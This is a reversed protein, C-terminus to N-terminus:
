NIFAEIVKSFKYPNDLFPFHSKGIEVISSEKIRKNMMKAVKFKVVKDKKSHIILVAAKIKKYNLAKTNKIVNSMVIKLEEKASAYDKSVIKHKLFHNLCLKLRTKVSRLDFGPTSVLVAKYSKEELMKLIVRGGFSHGILIPNDIGKVNIFEEILKSYDNLDRINEIKSKGFGPLDLFYLNVNELYNQIFLFSDLSQGWGHLFILNKGGSLKEIYHINKYFM